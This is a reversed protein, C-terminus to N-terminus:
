NGGISVEIPSQLEQSFQDVYSKWAEESACQGSKDWAFGAWYSISNDPAVKVLLLINAEDETQKEIAKADAVVAVGQLGHNKEVAQWSTLWGHEANFQKSEGAVKKLGIGCRLPATDGQPKYFSQFHDLNSGADLTIRKVEAIKKGNVEFPEYVLEFMVRIPGDTLV